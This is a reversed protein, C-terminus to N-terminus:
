IPFEYFLRFVYRTHSLKHFRQMRHFMQKESETSHVDLTQESDMDSQYWKRVLKCKAELQAKFDM